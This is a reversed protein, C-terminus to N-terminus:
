FITDLEVQLPKDNTYLTVHFDNDFVDTTHGTDLVDIDVNSEQENEVEVCVDDNTVDSGQVVVSINVDTHLTDFMDFMENMESNVCEGNDFYGINDVDYDANHDFNQDNEVYHVNRGRSQGYGYSRGRGRAYRGSYSNPNQGCM